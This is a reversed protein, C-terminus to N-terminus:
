TKSQDSVTTQSTFVHVFLVYLLTYYQLSCTAKVGGTAPGEATSIADGISSHQPVARHLTQCSQGVGHKTSKCFAHPSTAASTISGGWGGIPIAQSCKFNQLLKPNSTCKCIERNLSDSTQLFIKVHPSMKEKGMVKKNRYHCRKLGAQFYSQVM